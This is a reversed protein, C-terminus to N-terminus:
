GGLPAFQSFVCAVGPAISAMLIATANFIIPM